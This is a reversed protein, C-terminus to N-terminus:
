EAEDIITISTYGKHTNVRERDEQNDKCAIQSRDRKLARDGGKNLDIYRSKKFM